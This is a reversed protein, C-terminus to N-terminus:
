QRLIALQRLRNVDKPYLDDSPLFAAVDKDMMPAEESAWRKSNGFRGAGGCGGFRNCFPRKAMLFRTYPKISPEPESTDLSIPLVAMGAVLVDTILLVCVVVKVMLRLAPFM